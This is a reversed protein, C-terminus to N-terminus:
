GTMQPWSHRLEKLVDRVFKWVAPLLLLGGSGTTKIALGAAGTAVVSVVRMLAMRSDLALQVSRLHTRMAGVTVDPEWTTAFDGMWSVTTLGVNYGALATEVRAYHAVMRRIQELFANWQRYIELDKIKEPLGLVGFSVGETARFESLTGLLADKPAFLRDSPDFSVATDTPDLRDLEGHARALDRQALELAQTQGTLVAQAEAPSAPLEIRWTPEAPASAEASFSVAEDTPVDWLGLPDEGEPLAVGSLIFGHEAM